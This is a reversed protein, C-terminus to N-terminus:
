RNKLSKHTRQMQMMRADSATRNPRNSALGWIVMAADAQEAISRARARATKLWSENRIEGPTSADCGMGAGILIAAAKAAADSGFKQAVEPSYAGPCTVLGCAFGPKAPELAPCPGPMQGFVATALPCLQDMCCLGCSNCTKGHPPKELMM